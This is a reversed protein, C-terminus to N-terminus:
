FRYTSRLYVFRGNVGVPSVSADYPLNGFYSIDFISKDPYEDFLNSIGLAVSLNSTLAYQTDIDIVWEDGYVQTPESGGGFDFVRKTEGFNTARTMISLADKSWTATLILKDKPAATEFTNTEEIGFINRDPANVVDTDTQNYAASLDWNSIQYSAVIDFGSTETDIINTFFNISSIDPINAVNIGESLAIRDDIDIEYYDFTLSFQEYNYLIGFSRNFSEEAELPKAGNDIAVQNSVPLNLSRVLAGGDGFVSGGGAFFSQQLSPARFGTSIAARLALNDTLEARAAVKVNLTDGFDSYDEYRIAASLNVADTIKFDTDVFVSIANRNEDVTDVPQLGPGAQSGIPAGIIPGAQYSAPDGAKTKYFEKRYEIGATLYVTTNAIDFDNSAEVNAVAQSYEYEARNFRTPSSEGLSPNLSNKVDDDYTNSGYVLSSDLLWDGFYTTVGGALSFDSVRAVSVPRYGNPYISQINNESVPYRFFNSGEADRDSYTGFGYLETKSSLTFGANFALNLDSSEGDGVTFNRKGALADNPAAEPTGSPPIPAIFEAFGITPLQDFGARNTASRNRFEGSLNIFGNGLSLGKNFSLIATNGDTIDEDIPKLNTMHAGYTVSVSGESESDKLVINIVGAIADSGYQAAAGDRLVEIRAIASTPINNFDVAAAGKGLKTDAAVVANSHRRKGNVLVLIQDPNLGRLQAARVIDSNGSNSQRPMNFSPINAQLLMGIESGLTGSQELQEATIIDVPVLSDQLSRGPVRSGVISIEEIASNEAVANQAIANTQQAGAGLTLASLSLAVIIKNKNFVKTM